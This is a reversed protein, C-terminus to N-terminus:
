NTKTKNDPPFNLAAFEGFLISASLDYARAAAEETQYLGLAILQNVRIRAQWRGTKKHFSVGKYQSSCGLRKRCNRSNELPSALRLNERRNDLGDGNIHDLRGVGGFIERHLHINVRKGDRFGTRAAYYSRGGRRAYWTFKIVEAFDADDVLAVKGQTLPIRRM